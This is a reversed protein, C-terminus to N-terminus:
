NHNTEILDFGADLRAAFHPDGRDEFGHVEEDLELSALGEDSLEIFDDNDWMTEGSFVEENAVVFQIQPM